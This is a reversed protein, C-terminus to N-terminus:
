GCSLHIGAAAGAGTGVATAIAQGTGGGILSGGLGGLVAGTLTGAVCAVEHKQEPTQNACAAVAFVAGALLLSV